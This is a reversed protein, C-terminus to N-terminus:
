EVSQVSLPKGGERVGGAGCHAAAGAPEAARPGARGGGRRWAADGAAHGGAAARPGAALSTYPPHPALLASSRPPLACCSLHIQIREQYFPTACGTGCHFCGKGGAASGVQLDSIYMNIQNQASRQAEHLSAVEEAKTALEAASPSNFLNCATLIQLHQIHWPCISPGIGAETYHRSLM